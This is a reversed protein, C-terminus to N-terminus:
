YGKASDDGRPDAGGELKGDPLVLIADVRGISGRNRFQHGMNQLASITLSDMAAPEAQIVDPLWQHHFRGAAVAEQMGMGHEIVNLITQYVSTIITSGGPTGVVMYLEGDKEVITPTMSSLMRKGPAISNAEGGVLGYINPYGPKVSFDDMENNLLFGAGAVIVKSGYGGNLTTTISIANGAADVISFHTTEDSEYPAPNGSGIIESDSAKNPDFDSIRQEIYKPDLLGALPVDYFDPDGLHNARDAYIRREAETMLHVTETSNWGWDAIPYNEVMKMLGVLAVGGSSPPAMSILKYNKYDGLVPERWISQYNQLDEHSIIGDGRQMEAVILDAVKGTYFGDRGNDRILELTAALDKWYITDGEVWVSDILFAPPITNHEILSRKLNNIGRAENATLTFGNKALDIAPQILEEWSLSGYKQHLTQMGDVSGPVGSALHGSVSLDEIVEGNADLYMDRGGKEPATERFDLTAYEGSNSRYIAFGGGGINGANPYVVALAFQVAVAADVANGGKELIQKGVESALPHASVVMANEVILGRQIEREQPLNEKCSLAALFIIPIFRLVFKFKM